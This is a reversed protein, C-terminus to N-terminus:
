EGNIAQEACEKGGFLFRRLSHWCAPTSVHALRTVTQQRERFRRIRFLEGM